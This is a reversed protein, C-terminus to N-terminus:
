RGKFPAHGRWEQLATLFDEFPEDEPWFDGRLKGVDTIPGTGQEAQLQELSPHGTAAYKVGRPREITAPENRSKGGPSLCGTLVCNANSSFSKVEGYWKVESHVEAPSASAPEAPSCGALSYGAPFEDLRHAPARDLAIAGGDSPYIERHRLFSMFFAAASRGGKQRAALQAEFEAPPVYGLASHLRKQNYVQELFQHISARVEALDRYENRYVEEYKLTKMFSECAANDWPNAKRSM